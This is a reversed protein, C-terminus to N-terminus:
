SKPHPRHLTKAAELVAIKRITDVAPHSSKALKLRAAVLAEAKEIVLDSFTEARPAAPEDGGEIQVAPVGWMQLIEVHRSAIAAGKRFLIQGDLNRVDGALIMGIKLDNTKQTSM